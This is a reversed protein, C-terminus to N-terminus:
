DAAAAKGASQSMQQLLEVAGRGMGTERVVEDPTMGQELLERARDATSSPRSDKPAIDPVEGGDYFDVDEPEENASAAPTEAPEVEGAEDEQSIEKLAEMVGATTEQAAPESPLAEESDNTSEDRSEADFSEGETTEEAVLSAEAQSQTEDSAAIDAAEEQLQWSEEDAFLETQEEDPEYSLEERDISETEATDPEAFAHVDETEMPLDVVDAVSSSVVIEAETRALEELQEKSFAPENEEPEEYRYSDRRPAIQSDVIVAPTEEVAMEVPIAQAPRDASASRRSSAVRRPQELYQEWNEEREERYPESPYSVAEYPEAYHEHSYAGRPEQGAREYYAARERRPAGGYTSEAAYMSASLTEAFDDEAADRRPQVRSVPIYEARHVANVGDIPRLSRYPPTPMVRSRYEDRAGRIQGTMRNDYEPAYMEEQPAYYPARAARMAAFEQEARQQAREQDARVAALQQELTRARDDAAAVLNELQHIHSEMRTIIADASHEMQLRMKVSAEEVEDAKSSAGNWLDRRVIFVILIGVIILFGLIETAM